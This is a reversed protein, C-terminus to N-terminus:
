EAAIAEGAAEKRLREEYRKRMSDLNLDLSPGVWMANASHDLYGDGTNPHILIKLDKRNLALWPVFEAFLEPPFAVQYFSVPHPGMAKDHWRGVVAGVFRGEIERRLKWAHHKSAGDYYLHAHYGKIMSIEQTKMVSLIEVM